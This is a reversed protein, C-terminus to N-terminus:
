CLVLRFSKLWIGVILRPHLLLVSVVLLLAVFLIALATREDELAIFLRAPTPLYLDFNRKLYSPPSIRWRKKHFATVHKPLLAFDVLVPVVLM